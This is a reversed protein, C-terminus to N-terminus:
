ELAFLQDLEDITYAATIEGSEHDFEKVPGFRATKKVPDATGAMAAVNDGFSFHWDEGMYMVLGALGAAIHLMQRNQWQEATLFKCFPSVLVGGNPYGHGFDLLQGDSNALFMDVAAGGKHSALRPTSATKSKSEAIIDEEPWSPHENRTTQVRRRFMAEQVGLPRFAELFHIHLGVTELIRGTLVLRKVVSERAWFEQPKGAWSGSSEPFPEDSFSAEIAATEFATPIYRLPEMSERIPVKAVQTQFDVCARAIGPTEAEHLSAAQERSLGQELFAGLVYPRVPLTSGLSPDDSVLRARTKAMALWSKQAEHFQDDRAPMFEIGLDRYESNLKEATAAPQVHGLAGLDIGLPPLEKSM